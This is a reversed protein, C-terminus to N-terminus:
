LDLLSLSLFINLYSIYTCSGSFIFAIHVVLQKEFAEVLIIFRQPLASLVDDFTM